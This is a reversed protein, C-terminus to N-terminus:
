YDKLTPIAPKSVYDPKPDITPDIYQWLDAAVARGLFSKSWREWDESRELQIEAPAM